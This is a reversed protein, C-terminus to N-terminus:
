RWGCKRKCRRKCKKHSEHKRCRCVGNNCGEQTVAAISRGPGALGLSGLAGLGLAGLSQIVRRRPSRPSRPRPTISGNDTTTM